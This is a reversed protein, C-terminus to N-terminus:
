NNYILNNARVMTGCPTGLSKKDNIKVDVVVVLFFFFGKLFYACM